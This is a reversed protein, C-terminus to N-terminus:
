LSTWLEYFEAQREIIDKQSEMVCTQNKIIDNQKKTVWLLFGAFVAKVNEENLTFTLISGCEPCMVRINPNFNANTLSDNILCTLENLSILAIDKNKAYEKAPETFDCTAVLIGKASKREDMMAAYLKQLVPRGIKKDRSYRKCEIVYSGM